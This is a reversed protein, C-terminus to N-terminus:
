AAQAHGRLAALLTFPDPFYGHWRAPDDGSAVTDPCAPDLDLVAQWVTRERSVLVTHADDWTDSGPRLVAATIRRRSDGSLPRGFGNVLADLAADIASM